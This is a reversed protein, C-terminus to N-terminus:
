YVQEELQQDNQRARAFQQHATHVEALMQQAQDTTQSGEPSTQICKQLIREAYELQGNDISEQAAQLRVEDMTRQFHRHAAAKRNGDVNCGALTMVVLASLVWIHKRTYKM